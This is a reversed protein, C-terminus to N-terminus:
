ADKRVSYGDVNYPVWTRGNWRSVTGLDQNQKWHHYNGRPDKFEIDFGWCDSGPLRGTRDGYYDQYLITDVTFSCGCATIRDGHTITRITDM